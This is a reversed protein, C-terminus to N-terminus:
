IANQYLLVRSKSARQSPKTEHHVKVKTRASNRNTSLPGCLETHYSLQCPRRAGREYVGTTCSTCSSDENLRTKDYSYSTRARIDLIKQKSTSSQNTIQGRSKSSGIIIVQRNRHNHNPTNLWRKGLADPYVHGLNSRVRKGNGNLRRMTLVVGVIILMM